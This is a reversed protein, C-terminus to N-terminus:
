QVVCKKRAHPDPQTPSHVVQVAPRLPVFRVQEFIQFLIENPLASLMSHQCTHRLLMITDIICRVYHPAEAHTAVSWHWEAGQHQNTDAIAFGDVV